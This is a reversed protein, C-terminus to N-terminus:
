GKPKPPEGRLEAEARANIENITNQLARRLKRMHRAFRAYAFRIHENADEEIEEPTRPVPPEVDDGPRYRGALVRQLIKEDAFMPGTEERLWEENAHFARCVKHILADSIPLNGHEYQSIVSQRTDLQEAFKTQSLSLAKRLSRFRQNITMTHM